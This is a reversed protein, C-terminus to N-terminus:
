KRIVVVLFIESILTIVLNSNSVQYFQLLVIIVDHM